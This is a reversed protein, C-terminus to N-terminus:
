RAADIARWILAPVGVLLAALLAWYVWVGVPRFIAAREFITPVQSLTSRPRSRRFVTAIGYDREGALGLPGRGVNRVCLDMAAGGGLAPRLQTAVAGGKPRRRGSLGRALVRGTASDYVVIETAPREGVPDVYSVEAVDFAGEREIRPQCAREGPELRAVRTTAQISPSFALDRSDSGAIAALALVTLLVCAALPVVTSARSM